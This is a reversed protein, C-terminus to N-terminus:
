IKKNADQKLILEKLFALDQIDKERYTNSKMFYLSKPAAVKLRVKDIELVEFDIKDYDYMEGLNSIIDVIDNEPSIYRVVAYSKLDNYTIEKIENDDFIKSLAARIRAVNEETMKIIIDLDESTRPMGYLIVAIGGIIIFDVGEKELADIIRLINNIETM